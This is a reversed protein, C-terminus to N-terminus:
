VMSLAFWAGHSLVRPPAHSWMEIAVTDLVALASNGLGRLFPPPRQWCLGGPTGPESCAHNPAGEPVDVECM